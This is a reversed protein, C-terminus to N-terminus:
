IRYWMRNDMSQTQDDMIETSRGFYLYIKTLLNVVDESQSSERKDNRGM